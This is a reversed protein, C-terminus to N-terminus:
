LKPSTTQLAMGEDTILDASEVALRMQEVGRAFSFRRRAFSVAHHSMASWRGADGYLDVIADCWEQPTRAIIADTGDGLGIGEAAVTSLVSPVGFSLADLVKGKIGAGTLLPAVFVRCTEFVAAVSEVFGKILVDNSSLAEIEPTVGSGYVVFRANLGARRLLPMVEGVFYMVAESNPPHGFGGLFAIDSRNEYPNVQEVADVVWPCTFVKSSALNHSLIVAHEVDNYSLTIDAERMIRLEEDRTNLATMMKDSDHSAIAERLERLFHLDANCFMIKARPAFRRVAELHRDAVMYRTIYVIDFEGGRSQLFDSVSYAFPAYITEIGARQLDQTYSGLYALNEPLFTIKAGLAQMTRMEQIAAYSGADNDPRPPQADIFLARLVIGRDKELDVKSTDTGHNRYNARWKRMFKPRNVEQFRKMGSATSTGNSIGEFHVVVSNAAYVTRLGAQRVKFSLDTDEYYAPRFEDSLGGIQAWLPTPIMVAAGSLYDAQRTYSYRPDAPNALRGYNWAVGDGWVIGGAEQLRGDPYILKSGALGVRDFHSFTYLLEDLWRATVETDNNLLVIYDGRAKSAGLNCASIFGEASENRCYTIGSILNTILRTDDSSGDDVVIVEFSADNYALILSALCNHTVAFKNHVPIVVSVCPKEIVPFTFPELKPTRDLGAVVREHAIGLQGLLTARWMKTEVSENPAVASRAAALAHARFSEYRYSAATSLKAPLNAGGYRAVASWPTLHAPLIEATEDVLMDNETLRVTLRHPQGDLVMPPLTLRFGNMNDGHPQNAWATFQPRGDVLLSVELSRQPQNGDRVWGVVTTGELGTIGGVIQLPSGLPIPSNVLDARTTRDIVQLFQAGGDASLEPLPVHWERIGAVDLSQLLTLETPSFPPPAWGLQEKQNVRGFRLNAFFFWSDDDSKTAGKRLVLQAFCPQPPTQVNVAVASYDSAYEGGNAKPSPRGIAEQLLVGAADTVRIVVEGACRHVAFLGSFQYLANPRLPILGDPHDATYAIEMPEAVQAADQRIFATHGNEIHWGVHDRGLVWGSPRITPQWSDLDEELAGDPLQNINLLPDTLQETGTSALFVSDKTRLEVDSPALKAPLLLIACGGAISTVVGSLPAPEPLSTTEDLAESVVLRAVAKNINTNPTNPM